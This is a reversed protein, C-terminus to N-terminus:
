QSGIKRILINLPMKVGEKEWVKKRGSNTKLNQKRVGHCFYKLGKVSVYKVM